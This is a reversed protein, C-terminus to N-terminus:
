TPSIEIGAALQATVLAMIGEASPDPIPLAELLGDAYLRALGYVLAYATLMVPEPVAGRVRGSAQGAVVLARLRATGRARLERLAPSDVASLERRFMARFHGPHEIAFSVFATGMGRLQELPDDGAAEIGAETAEVFRALAHEATATLLAERDAFHRFPAGSSVGTRRAVERMSLAELGREDIVELAATILAERLNGHHYTRRAVGLWLVRRGFTLM